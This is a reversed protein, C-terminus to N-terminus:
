VGIFQLDEVVRPHLDHSLFNADNRAATAPKTFVCRQRHGCLTYIHNQGVM